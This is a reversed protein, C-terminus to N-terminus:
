CSQKWIKHIFVEDPDCMAIANAIRLLAEETQITELRRLHEINLRQQFLQRAEGITHIGGIDSLIDVGKKFELM